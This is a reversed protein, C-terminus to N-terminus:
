AVTDDIVAKLADLNIRKLSPIEIIDYGAMAASAPNTGHASDSCDGQNETDRGM